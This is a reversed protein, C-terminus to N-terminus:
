QWPDQLGQFGEWRRVGSMKSLTFASIEPVYRSMAAVLEANRWITHEPAPPHPYPVLHSSLAAPSKVELGLSTFKWAYAPPPALKCSPFLPQVLALGKKKRGLSLGSKGELPQKFSIGM